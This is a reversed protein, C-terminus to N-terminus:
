NIFLKSAFWVYLKYKETHPLVNRLEFNSFTQFISRETEQNVWEAYFPNRKATENLGDGLDQLIESFMPM